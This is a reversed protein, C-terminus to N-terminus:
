GRKVWDPLDDYNQESLRTNAKEDNKKRENKGKRQWTRVAAKWDKMKNQGVMWGKATYFDVFAEADVDYGQTKCYERVADVSPPSFKKQRSIDKSIDLNKKNERQPRKSTTKQDNASKEKEKENQYIEYNCITVLTFRNTTQQDIAQSEQLRALGTRISRESIGLKESLSKRGVVLQGRKVEVGYWIRNENNANTLLYMFLSFTNPEDRWEWKDIKKYLKIWGEM